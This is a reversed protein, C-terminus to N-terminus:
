GSTDGVKDGYTHECLSTCNYFLEISDINLNFYHCGQHCAINQELEIDIEKSSCGLILFLSLIIFVTIKKNM